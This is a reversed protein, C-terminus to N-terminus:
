KILNCYSCSWGTKVENISKLFLKGCNPCKFWAKKNSNSQINYIFLNLKANEAVDWYGIIKKGHEKNKLSWDLLTNSKCM